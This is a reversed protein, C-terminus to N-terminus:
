HFKGATIILTLTLARWDCGAPVGASLGTPDKVWQLLLSCVDYPVTPHRM